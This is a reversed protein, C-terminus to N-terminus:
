QVQNKPFFNSVNTLEQRRHDIIELTKYLKQYELVLTSSIKVLFSITVADYNQTCLAIVRKFKDVYNRVSAISHFTKQAIVQYEDGLLWKEIILKRHSITRGMDKITSRLPILINKNKFVKLDRCITRQGCNFLRHALDEVTLLGGQQFAETCVREIRHQRLRIVGHKQRIKLDQEDESLTLIVTVLPANELKQNPPCNSDIVTLQLQGPRLSSANNFFPAFVEYVTELIANAEFSSCNCGQIVEQKFQNALSKQQLRYWKQPSSNNIMVDINKHSFHKPCEAQTGGVAGCLRLAGFM